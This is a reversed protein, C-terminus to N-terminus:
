DVTDLALIAFLIRTTSLDADCGAYLVGFRRRWDWTLGPRHNVRQQLEQMHASALVPPFTGLVQRLEEAAITAQLELRGQLMRVHQSMLCFNIQLSNSCM